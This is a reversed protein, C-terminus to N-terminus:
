QKPTIILSNESLRKKFALWSTVLADHSQANATTAYSFFSLAEHEDKTRYVAEGFVLEVRIPKACFWLGTKPCHSIYYNEQAM